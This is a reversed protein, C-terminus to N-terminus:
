GRIISNILDKYTEYPRPAHYDIYGNAELQEKIYFSGHGRCIRNYAPIPSPTNHRVYGDYQQACKYAYREELCFYKWDPSAIKSYDNAQDNNLTITDEQLIDNCFQEFSKNNLRFFNYLEEPKGYIYYGPVHNNNYSQLHFMTDSSAVYEIFKKDLLFCDIDCIFVIDKEFCPYYWKALLAQVLKPINPLLQIKEVRAFDSEYMNDSLNDTLYYLKSEINFKSWMHKAMPEWFESYVPNNDCVFIAKMM